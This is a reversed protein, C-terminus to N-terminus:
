PICYTGSAGFGDKAKDWIEAHRCAGISINRTTGPLVPITRFIGPIITEVKVWIAGPGQNNVVLTGAQNSKGLYTNGGNHTRWSGTGFSDATASGRDDLQPASHLVPLATVTTLLAGLLIKTSFM